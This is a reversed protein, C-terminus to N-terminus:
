KKKLEPYLVAWLKEGLEHRVRERALHDEIRTVHKTVSVVGRLQRMAAILSEIDDTRVDSDLTVTLAHVRDTM